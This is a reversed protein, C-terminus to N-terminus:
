LLTGAVVDCDTYSNDTKDRHGCGQGLPSILASPVPASASHLSNFYRIETWDTNLTQNM